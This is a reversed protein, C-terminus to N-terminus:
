ELELANPIDEPERPTCFQQLESSLLARILHSDKIIRKQESIIDKAHSIKFNQQAWLGSLMEQYDPNEFSAASEDEGHTGDAAGCSTTHVPTAVAAVAVGTRIGDEEGAVALQVRLEDIMMMKDSNEATLLEILKEKQRVKETLFEVNMQMWEKEIKKEKRAAAWASAKASAEFAMIRKMAKKTPQEKKTKM